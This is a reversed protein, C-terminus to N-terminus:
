APPVLPRYFLKFGAFKVDQSDSCSLGLFCSNVKVGRPFKKHVFRHIRTVSGIIGTEIKGSGIILWGSAAAETNTGLVLSVSKNFSSGNVGSCTLMATYTAGSAEAVASISSILTSNAEHGFLLRGTTINTIIPQKVTPSASYDTKNNVDGGTAFGHRMYYRNTADASYLNDNHCWLHSAKWTLQTWGGMRGKAINAKGAIPDWALTTDNVSGSSSICILYREHHFASCSNEKASQSMSLFKDRICDGIPVPFDGDRARTNFDAWYITGNGQWVIGNGVDHISHHSNCGKECIKFAEVGATLPGEPFVYTNEETWVFLKRDFEYLGTIAPPFYVYNLAPFYDPVGPNSFVLKHTLTGTSSIGIGVLQGQYVIPNKLRPPTGNDLPCEAGEEDNPMNDTFAEGSTFFGVYRFPGVEQGAPSRYVNAKSVGSPLVNGSLAWDIVVEEDAEVADSELTASPGSEGYKTTSGSDDYFYTLKYWYVGGQTISRDGDTTETGVASAASAVNIVPPTLGLATSPSDVGGSWRQPLDAGNGYILDEANNIGYKVFTVEAGTTLTSMATGGGVGAWRDNVTDFVTVKMNTGDDYSGVLYETTGIHVITFSGPTYTSPMITELDAGAFVPSFPERTILTGDRELLLNSLVSFQDKALAVAPYATVLGGMFSDFTMEDYPQAKSPWAPSEAPSVPTINFSM